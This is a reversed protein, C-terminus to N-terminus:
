PQSFKMSELAASFIKLDYAPSAGSITEPIDGAPRADLQADVRWIGLSPWNTVIRNTGHSNVLDEEWCLIRWFEQHVDGSVAYVRQWGLEQASTLANRKPSLELLVSKKDYTVKGFSLATLAKVLAEKTAASEAAKRVSELSPFVVPAATGNRVM